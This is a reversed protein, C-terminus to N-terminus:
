MTGGTTSRRISKNPPPAGMELRNRVQLCVREGLACQKCLGPPQDPMWCSSLSADDMWAQQELAISLPTMTEFAWAGDASQVRLSPHAKAVAGGKAGDVPLALQAADAVAGRCIASPRKLAMRLAAARQRVVDASEQM